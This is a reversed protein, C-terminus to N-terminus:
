AHLCKIVVHVCNQGKQGCGVEIHVNKVRVTSLFLNKQGGVVGKQGRLRQIDGM